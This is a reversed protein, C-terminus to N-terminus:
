IRIPKLFKSYYHGALWNGDVYAYTEDTGWRVFGFREYLNIAAKQTECVDLKLVSLDKTVAKAKVAALIDDALGHGWAWPALFFSSFLGVSAKAENSKPHLYLQASGCIVGDLRAVFLTRQPILIVGKWHKEMVERAPVKLWGFGDGQEIVAETADCLDDLDTGRFQTLVEVTRFPQLHTM